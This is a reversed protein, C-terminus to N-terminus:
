QLLTETEHSIHPAETGKACGQATASPLRSHAGQSRKDPCCSKPSIGLLSIETGVPTGCIASGAQGTDKGQREGTRNTVHGQAMARSLQGCGSRERPFSLSPLRSDPAPRPGLQGLTSEGM